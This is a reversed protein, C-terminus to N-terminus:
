TKFKELSGPSNAQTGGARWCGPTGRLLSTLGRRGPRSGPAPGPNLKFKVDKVFPGQFSKYFTQSKIKFCPLIGHFASKLRAVPAPSAGVAEPAAHAGLAAAPHQLLAPGSAALAERPLLLSRRQGVGALGGALSVARVLGLGGGLRGAKGPLLPQAAAPLVEPGLGPPCPQERRMEADAQGRPLAGAGAQPQHGSALHALGGPAVPHLAEEPLKKAAVFVAQRRSIDDNHGFLPRGIQGIVLHFGLQELDQDPAPLNVTM